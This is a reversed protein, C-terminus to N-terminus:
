FPLKYDNNVDSNGNGNVRVAPLSPVAPRHHYRLRQKALVVGENEHAHMAWASPNSDTTNTTIVLKVEQGEVVASAGSGNGMLVRRQYWNVVVMAMGAM